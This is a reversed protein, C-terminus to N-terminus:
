KKNNYQIAFLYYNIRSFNKGDVKKDIVNNNEKIKGSLFHYIIITIITVLSKYNATTFEM